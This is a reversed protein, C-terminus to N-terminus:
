PVPTTVESDMPSEDLAPQAQIPENLMNLLYDVAQKRILYVRQNNASVTDVYVYYAVNEPNTDGIDIITEYTQGTADHMRFRFRYAPEPRLGFRERNESTAEFTQDATFLMFATAAKEILLQDVDEAAISAQVDAISPAYWLGREDRVVLIGKGTTVDLVEIGDVQAPDLLEPFLVLPQEAQLTASFIRMQAQRTAPDDLMLMVVMMAAFGALLVYGVQRKLM